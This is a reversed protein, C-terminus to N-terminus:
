QFSQRADKGEIANVVAEDRVEILKAFAPQYADALGKWYSLAFSLRVGSQAPQHKLANRHYWVHKALAQEFKKERADAQAERLIASSEPNEPPSLPEDAVTVVLGISILLASICMVSSERTATFPRPMTRGCM